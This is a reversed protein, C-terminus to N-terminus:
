TTSRGRSRRRHARGAGRDRPAALDDARVDALAGGYRGIPTRLGDVIFVERGTMTRARADVAALPRPPHPAAGPGGPASCSSRRVDAGRARGDLGARLGSEAGCFGNFVGETDSTAVIRNVSSLPTGVMEVGRVLTEEGTKADVPLGHAAHGQLGPLRLRRHQHQRRHHRPHHPRVAQGAARGGRAADAEARTRAGAQRLARLTRWARWRTSRAGDARGHGNSHPSGTM